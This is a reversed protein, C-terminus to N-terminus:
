SAKKRVIKAKLGLKICNNIFFIADKKNIFHYKTLTYNTIGVVGVIIM